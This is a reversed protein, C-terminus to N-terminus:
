EIGEGERETATPNDGFQLQGEIESTADKLVFKRAHKVGLPMTNRNFPKGWLGCAPYSKAWDTATSCGDGYAECKYYRKTYERRYLNCCSACTNGPSEGHLSYMVEAREAGNLAM